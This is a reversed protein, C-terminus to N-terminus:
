EGEEINFWKWKGDSLQEIIAFEWNTNDVIMRIRFEDAEDFTNFEQSMPRQEHLRYTVRWEMM